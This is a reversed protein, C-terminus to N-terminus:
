EENRDTGEWKSASYFPYKNVKILLKVSGLCFLKLGYAKQAVKGIRVVREKDGKGKTM